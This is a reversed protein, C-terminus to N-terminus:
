MVFHLFIGHVVIGTEAVAILSVVAGVRICGVNGTGCTCVFVVSSCEPGTMMKLHGQHADRNAIVDAKLHMGVRVLADPHLGAFSNDLHAGVFAMQVARARQMNTVSDKHGAAGPVVNEVIAIARQLQRGDIRGRVVGPTSDLGVLLVGVELFVGKQRSVSVFRCKEIVM